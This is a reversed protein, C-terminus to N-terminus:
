HRALCYSVAVPGSNPMRGDARGTHRTSRAPPRRRLAFLCAQVCDEDFQSGANTGLERLAAGV